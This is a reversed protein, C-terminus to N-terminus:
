RLAHKFAKGYHRALQAAEPSSGLLCALLEILTYLAGEYVAPQGAPGVVIAWATTSIHFYKGATTDM